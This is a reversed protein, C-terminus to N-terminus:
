GRPLETEEDTSLIERGPLALGKACPKAGLLVQDRIVMAVADPAAAAAAVGGGVGGREGEALQDRPRIGAGQRQTPLGPTAGSTGTM